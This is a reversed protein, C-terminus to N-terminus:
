RPQCRRPPPPPRPAARRVDRRLAPQPGPAARRPRVHVPGADHQEAGGRVEGAAGLKRQCPQLGAGGDAGPHAGHQRRHEDAHHGPGRSSARDRQPRRPPDRQRAQRRRDLDRDAGRAADLARDGPQAHDHHGAGRAAIRRHRGLHAARHARVLLDIARRDRYGDGAYVEVATDFDAEIDRVREILDPAPERAIMAGSRWSSPDCARPSRAGPLRCRASGRWTSIRWRAPSVSGCTGRTTDGPLVLDRSVALLTNQASRLYSMSMFAQDYIQAATAGLRIENSRALLGLVITVCALNLCGLLIKARISM